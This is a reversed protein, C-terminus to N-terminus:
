DEQANISVRSPSSEVDCVVKDDIFDPAFTAATMPGVRRAGGGCDSHTADCLRLKLAYLTHFADKTV